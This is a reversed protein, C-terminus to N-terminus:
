AAEKKTPELYGQEEPEEETYPVTIIAFIDEYDMSTNLAFTGPMISHGKLKAHIYFSYANDIVKNQELKRAVNM